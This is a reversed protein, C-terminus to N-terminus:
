GPRPPCNEVQFPSRKRSESVQSDHEVEILCQIYPQEIMMVTVSRAVNLLLARVNDLPISYLVFQIALLKTLCDVEDTQIPELWPKM